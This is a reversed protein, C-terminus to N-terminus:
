VGANVPALCVIRSLAIPRIIEPEPRERVVFRLMRKDCPSFTKFMPWNRSTQAPQGGIDGAGAAM